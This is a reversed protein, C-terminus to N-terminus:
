TGRRVGGLCSSQGGGVPRLSDALLDDPLNAMHGRRDSGGESLQWGNTLIRRTGEPGPKERGAKEARDDAIELGAQGVGANARPWRRLGIDDWAHPAM